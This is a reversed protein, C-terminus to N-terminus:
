QLTVEGSDLSVEKGSETLVVLCGSDDLRLATGSFREQGQTVRIKKGFMESHQTWRGAIGTMGQRCYSQYERDFNELLTAIVRKRDTTEGNEMLLSTALCDLPAPFQSHNVNIGIGIVVGSHKGSVVNESLTGSIKKGKILVDNPWKLTARTRSFANLTEVVAIATMLTLQHVRDVPIRPVLLLSLYVGMEKQSFWTRGMRGKGQAQSDAVIVTGEPEGQSLLHKTLENTSDVADFFKVHWKMQTTKLRNKIWTIEADSYPM